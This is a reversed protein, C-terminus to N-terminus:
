EFMQEALAINNIDDIIAEIEAETKEGARLIERYDIRISSGKPDEWEGLSHTFDAIEWRTKGGHESFIDQLVQEEADSLKEMGPDKLLNIKHNSPASITGVWSGDGESEGHLLNLTESLV